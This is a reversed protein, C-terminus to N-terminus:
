TSTRFGGNTKFNKWGSKVSLTIIDRLKFMEDVLLDYISLFNSLLQNRLVEIKDIVLKVNKIIVNPIEKDIMGKIILVFRSIDKHVEFSDNIYKDYQKKKNCSTSGYGTGKICRWITNKGSDCGICPIPIRLQRYKIMLYYSITSFVIFTIRVSM